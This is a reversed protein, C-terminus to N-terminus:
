LNREHMWGHYIGCLNRNMKWWGEFDCDWNQSRQYIMLLNAV